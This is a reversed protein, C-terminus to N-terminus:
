APPVRYGRFVVARREIFGLRRYLARAATNGEVVHLFAQEGRAAIRRVLDDVLVGALGQGRVEEAACVASIETAGAPRLREGAMAVLRGGHRIGLYTGLEGTRPFFPGPRTRTALELMEVADAPCLEVVQPDPDGSPPPAVLQRGELEFLPTWSAPPTAPSIFLEAVAGPGLLAALDAWDQATPDAPVASFVAVDSPYTATRGARRAMGAHAGALSSGVPDDLATM